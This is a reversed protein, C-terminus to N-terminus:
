GTSPWTRSATAARPPHQPEGHRPGDTRLGLLPPGIRDVPRVPRRLARHDARLGAELHRVATAADRLRGRAAARRPPGPRSAQLGRRLQRLHLAQLEAAHAGLRAGGGHGHRQRRHHPRSEGGGARAAGRGRHRALPAHHDRRPRHPHHRPAGAGGRWTDPQTVDAVVVDLREAFPAFYRQAAADLPAADLVVLARRPDAELWHRALVSMVFGTAGTVLLTM